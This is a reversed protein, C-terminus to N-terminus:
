VGRSGGDKAGVVEWPWVSETKERTQVKQVFVQSKVNGARSSDPSEKWFLGWAPQRPPFPLSTSLIRSNTRIRARGSM